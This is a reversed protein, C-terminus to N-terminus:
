SVNGLHTPKKNLEIRGMDQGNSNTLISKSLNELKTMAEKKLEEKTHSYRKLMRIDKHGTLEMVTVMDEKLRTVLNSAFTHRLSHFTCDVGANERAKWFERYFTELSKDKFYQFVFENEGNRLRLLTEKLVDPLPIERSENNKTEKILIYGKRFDVDKWKLNLIEGRRMGTLFACLLVPKFEPSATQYMKEFEDDELVRYISKPIDMLKVGKVPNAKTLKWQIALNFMRKLVTLERNITAPKRGKEKREKKYREIDWATIQSLSKGKFFRLALNVIQQDRWSCRHNVKAWKLYDDALKNFPIPKKTEELNFRGQVVEGVVAKLASHAMTKTIIGVKGIPIRRRIGNHDYFDAYYSKGIVRLKAM